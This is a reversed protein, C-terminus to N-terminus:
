IGPLVGTSDGLRGARVGAKVLLGLLLNAMPEPKRADCRLHRNGALAGNAGGVVVLPLDLAHHRSSDSLGAGYLLVARDLLTADGDPTARLRECFRAFLAVHTRNIAALAALSVPDGGHHSVEHHVVTGTDLAYARTSAEPAFMFTAVRTLDARYALYLLDFMQTAHAGPDDDPEADLGAAEEPVVDSRGPRSASATEVARIATLYDEVAARDRADIRRALAHLQDAVGDLISRDRGTGGDAGETGFLRTFVARPEWVMPNPTDPGRWSITRRAAEPTRARPLPGDPVDAMLALDPVATDRGLDRAALQDATVAGQLHGAGTEILPMGSLWAAAARAHPGVADARGASPQGLGSVVTVHPRLPSLPELTGTLAPCAGASATRWADMAMGNPVYFFGLRAPGSAPAASLAPLMADLWPLAISM